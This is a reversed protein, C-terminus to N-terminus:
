LKRMSTPIDDGSCSVRNQHKAPRSCCLAQHKDCGKAEWIECYGDSKAESEAQKDQWMKLRGPDAKIDAPPEPKQRLMSRKLDPRAMVQIRELPCTHTNSFSEKAGSEFSQCAVLVLGVALMSAVRKM